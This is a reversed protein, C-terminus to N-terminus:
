LTSPLKGAIATFMNKLALGIGSTNSFAAVLVIAMLGAIIGYEIATAGEEDRLFRTISRLM